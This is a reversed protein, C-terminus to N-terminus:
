ATAEICKDLVRKRASWDGKPFWYADYENYTPEDLSFRELEPFVESLEFSRIDFLVGAMFCFGCENFKTEEGEENIWTSPNDAEERMICYATFREEKTLPNFFLSPNECCPFNMPIESNCNM